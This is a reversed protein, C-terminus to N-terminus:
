DTYSDHYRWWTYPEGQPWGPPSDEWIEQRGYPTLDLYTWVSGLHEVGRGDVYYTRYINAGDRLLVNLKFTEGDETTADMDANFDSGFSSYWPTTWGMRQQFPRIKELPASSVLVRSTDRAHLHAAHGFNDVVMSCGSCPEDDDPGYMFNYVILQRRGEFLDLLSAPGDPGQFTYEKEIRVMPLRRREANLADHARTMEKEKVLLAERAAQWEAQSVVRPLNATAAPMMIEGKGCIAGRVTALAL